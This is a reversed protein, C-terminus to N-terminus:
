LIITMYFFNGVTILDKFKIPQSNYFYKIENINDKLEDYDYFYLFTRLLCDLNEINRFTLEQKYYENIQFINNKIQNCNISFLNLTDNLFIFINSEQKFYQGITTDWENKM